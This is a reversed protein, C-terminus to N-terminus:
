KWLSHTAGCQASSGLTRKDGQSRHRKVGPLMGPTVCRAHLGSQQDKGLEGTTMVLGLPSGSVELCVNIKYSAYQVSRGGGWLTQLLEVPRQSVLPRGTNMRYLSYIVTLLYVSSASLGRTCFKLFIQPSPSTAQHSLTSTTYADTGTAEANHPTSVPSDIPSAPDPEVLSQTGLSSSPAHCTTGEELRRTHM